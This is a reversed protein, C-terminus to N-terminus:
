GANSFNFEVVQSTESGAPEFRWKKVADLAAEVLLPHGGVVKTGVVQGGAAITVQIKVVGTVRMRKALEPYVPSVKSRVARTDEAVAGPLLVLGLAALGLARRIMSAFM